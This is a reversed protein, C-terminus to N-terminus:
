DGVTQVGADDLVAQLSRLAKAWGGPLVPLGRGGLGLHPELSVFGEWGSAALEGALKRWQGDGSGVPVVRGTAASADKAHITVVRDRLLHWAALVDVGCQVYNAPDFIHRVSAGAADAFEAAREPTDGWVGKENEVLLTVDSAEAALGLAEAGRLVVSRDADADSTFWSFVRVYPTEFWHALEAARKIERLQMALPSGAPTKGITTAICSVKMGRETLATEAADLQRLSAALVPTAGIRRLEIHRLGLGHALHVQRNFTTLAEDTFGSLTIM